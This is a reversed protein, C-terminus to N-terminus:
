CLLCLVRSERFALPAHTHRTHCSVYGAKTDWVGVCCVCWVGGIMLLALYEKGEEGGDSALTPEGARTTHIHTCVYTDPCTHIYTGDPVAGALVCRVDM